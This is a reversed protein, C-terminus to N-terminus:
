RCETHNSKGPGNYEVGSEVFKGTDYWPRDHDFSRFRTSRSELSVITRRYLMHTPKVGYFRGSVTGFGVKM